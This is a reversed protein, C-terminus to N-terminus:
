APPAPRVPGARRERASSAMLSVRTPATPPPSGARVSPACCTPGPPGPQLPQAWLTAALLVGAVAGVLTLRM